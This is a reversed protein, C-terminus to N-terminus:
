TSTSRGARSPSHTAGTGRVTTDPWPDVPAYGVIRGSSKDLLVALDGKPGHLPLFVLKSEPLGTKAVARALAAASEPRRERLWAIPRGKERVTDVMAEYPLYYQPYTKLDAGALASMMLRLQEDPDAPPVAAALRPGDWPLTRFPPAAKALSAPLIDDASTIEFRDRVFVMYVPRAQAVVHIGYALAAVQLAGIVVLDLRLLHLPKGPTFVIWTLLPGLTVDVALMILVLGKAGMAQFYPAPYWVFLMAALCSAVISFSVAFQIAAARHRSMRRPPEAVSM